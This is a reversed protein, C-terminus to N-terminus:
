YKKKPEIKSKSKGKVIKSSLQDLLTKRGCIFM